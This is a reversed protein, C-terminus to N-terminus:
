GGKRGRGRSPAGVPRRAAAAPRKAVSRAPPKREGAISARLADMLNVVRRPEVAPAPPKAPMGSRKEKILEVLAAEYRDAFETPDFPGAKTKVIHRPLERMEAPLELAPIDEFYDAELAAHDRRDGKVASASPWARCQYEGPYPGM